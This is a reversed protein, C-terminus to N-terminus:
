SRNNIPTRPSFGQQFFGKQTAETKGQAGSLDDYPLAGECVLFLVDSTSASALVSVESPSVDLFTQSDPTPGFPMDATTADRSMTTVYFTSGGTNNAPYRVTVQHYRINDGSAIYQAASSVNSGIVYYEKRRHVTDILPRTYVVTNPELQVREGM